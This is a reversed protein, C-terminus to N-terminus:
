RALTADIAYLVVRRNLVFAGYYIYIKIEACFLVVAGHLHFFEEDADEDAGAARLLDHVDARRQHHLLRVHAVRSSHRVVM